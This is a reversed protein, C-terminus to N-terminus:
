VDVLNGKSELVERIFDGLSDVDAMRIDFASWSPAKQRMQVEFADLAGRSSLGRALASGIGGAAGTTVVSQRNFIM